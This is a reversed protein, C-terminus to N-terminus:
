VCLPFVDGHDGTELDAAASMTRARRSQYRDWASQPSIMAYPDGDRRLDFASCRDGVLRSCGESCIVENESVDRNFLGPALRRLGRGIATESMGFFFLQRYAYSETGIWSCSESWIPAIVNDPLDLWEIALSRNVSDDAHWKAMDRFTTACWGSSGLAQHVCNLEIADFAFVMFMHSWRAIPKPPWGPRTYYRIALSLASRDDASWGWGIAHPKECLSTM